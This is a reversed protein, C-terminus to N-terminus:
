ARVVVAGGAQEIKQRASESFKDAEV